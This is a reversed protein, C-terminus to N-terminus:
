RDFNRGRAIIARATGEGFNPISLRSYTALRKMRHVPIDGSTHLGM